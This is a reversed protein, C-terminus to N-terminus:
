EWINIVKIKCGLIDEVEMYVQDSYITYENPETDDVIYGIKNVPDYINITFRNVKLDRYAYKSDVLKEIVDIAAKKKIKLKKYNEDIFCDYVIGAIYDRFEYITEDFVCINRHKELSEVGLINPVEKLFDDYTLEIYKTKDNKSRRKRGENILSVLTKSDVFYKKGFSNLFIDLNM